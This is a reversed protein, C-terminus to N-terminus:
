TAAKISCCVADFVADAEISLMSPHPQENRAYTSAVDKARLVPDHTGYPGNRAPDTPGFLAVAPTGLAVALHLPGTDGAVICVANRLLAMLQGLSGNYAVPDAKGSAAKVASILDEEGPGHNLVCRLGLRDHIKECLSGYRDPPWCKSGWGGGPSLVVYRGISVGRLQQLVFAEQISSV